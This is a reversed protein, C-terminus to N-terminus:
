AQAPACALQRYVALYRAVMDTDSFRAAAERRCLEPDVAETRAIAEAMEAVDRVLFGTRGDSVVEPIAGNPFAVVPTGCAIAEMAVLSSTEPALSPLLLCRAGALLERKRAFGVPGLWVVKAGLHPKVKEAFYDQHAAYSFVSGGILLRVGAARAAAIALHQGKEPCIRSLMLAHGRGSHPLAALSSVPVGNPIPPLLHRSPPCAAHQARSVCNVWVGPLTLAGPPYWSPPLHLTALVPPWGPRAKPLVEAFDLGHCHVVDVRRSRLVAGVADRTAAQARARAADDLVQEAPIAVLEGATESGEPAVVISRHGAAALARDLTSLIQEAGGVADPGTPALTYGVSLVTLGM